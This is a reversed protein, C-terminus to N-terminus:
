LHEPLSNLSIHERYNELVPKNIDISTKDYPVKSTVNQLQAHVYRAIIKKGSHPKKKGFSM